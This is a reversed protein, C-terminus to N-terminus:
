KIEERQIDQREKYQNILEKIEKYIYNERMIIAVFLMIYSIILLIEGAKGERVFAFIAMITLFIGLGFFLVFLLYNLKNIIKDKRKMEEGRIEKLVLSNIKFNIISMYYGLFITDLIIIWAIINWISCVTIGLISYIYILSIYTYKRKM